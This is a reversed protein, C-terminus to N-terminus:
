QVAGGEPALEPNDPAEQYAWDITTSAQSVDVVYFKAVNFTGKSDVIRVIYSHGQILEVTASPAWGADPAWDVYVLEIYGYDQISVGADSNAFMTPIGSPVGFYVDTGIDDWAQAIGTLSSFDYGSRGPNQGLYDFLFLNSGEPRPTDFVNDLSLPSEQFAQDFALVAYFYTYGNEVATDIFCTEDARTEAVFEFVGTPETNWYVRYGAIDPEPNPNWCIEVEGDGTISYVGDPASPPLDVIVPDDESCGALAALTVVAVGVVVLTGYRRLNVLGTQDKTIRCNLTM